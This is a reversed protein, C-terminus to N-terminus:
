GIDNVLFARRDWRLPAFPGVQLGVLAHGQGNADSECLTVEVACFFEQHLYRIRSGGLETLMPGSLLHSLCESGTLFADLLHLCPEDSSSDCRLPDRM